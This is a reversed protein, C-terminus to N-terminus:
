ELRQEDRNLSAFWNRNLCGVTVFGDLERGLGDSGALLDPGTESLKIGLFCLLGPQRSGRGEIRALVNRAKASQEIRSQLRRAHFVCIAVLRNGLNDRAERRLSGIM